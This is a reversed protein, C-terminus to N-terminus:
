LLSYIILLFIVIVIGIIVYSTTTSDKNFLDKIKEIFNKFRGQLSNDIESSYSDDPIDVIDDFNEDDSPVEIKLGEEVELTGVLNEKLKMLVWLQKSNNKIELIQGTLKEFENLEENYFGYNTSVYKNQLIEESPYCCIYDGKALDKAVVGNIPALIPICQIIDVGYPIKFEKRIVGNQEEELLACSEKITNHFTFDESLNELALTVKLQSEFLINLRSTLTTELTQQLSNQQTIKFFLESNKSLINELKLSDTKNAEGRLFLEKMLDITQEVYMTSIDYNSIFSSKGCVATVEFKKENNNGMTRTTAVFLGFIRKQFDVIKGKVAIYSHTM